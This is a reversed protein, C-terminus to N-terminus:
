GWARREESSYDDVNKRFFDLNILKISSNTYVIRLFLWASLTARVALM